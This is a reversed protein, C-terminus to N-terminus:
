GALTSHGAVSATLMSCRSKAGTMGLFVYRDDAGDGSERVKHPMSSPTPTDCQVSKVSDIHLTMVIDRLVSRQKVTASKM